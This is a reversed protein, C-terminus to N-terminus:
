AYWEAEEDLLASQDRMSSPENRLPDMRQVRRELRILEANYHNAARKFLTRGRMAWGLGMRCVELTVHDFGRM